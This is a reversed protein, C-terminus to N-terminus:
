FHRTSLIVSPLQFLLSNQRHGLLISVPQYHELLCLSFQNRPLLRRGLQLQGLPFEM